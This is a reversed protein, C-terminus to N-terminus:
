ALYPTDGTYFQTFIKHFLIWNEPSQKIGQKSQKYSMIYLIFLPKHWKNNSLGNIAILTNTWTTLLKVEVVIAPRGNGRTYRSKWPWCVSSSEMSFSIVLNNSGFYGSLCLVWVLIVYVETLLLMMHLKSLSPAEQLPFLLPPEHVKNFFSYIIKTSSIAAFYTIQVKVWNFGETFDLWFCISVMIAGVFRMLLGFFSRTDTSCHSKSYRSFCFIIIVAFYRGPTSFM